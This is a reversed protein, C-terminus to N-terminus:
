DMKAFPELFAKYNAGLSPLDYGGEMLVLSPLGLSAIRIGIQHIDEQDLAFKGLPDNKSIDMGASVVLYDPAAQDLMDVAQGLARLYRNM